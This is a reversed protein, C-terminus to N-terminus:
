ERRMICQASMPITGSSYGPLWSFFTGTIMRHPYSAIRVRVLSGSSANNTGGGTSNAVSVWSSTSTDYRQISIYSDTVAAYSALRVRSRITEVTNGLAAQRSGERAGQHLILYESFMTGFEAIAMLIVFLTPVVLMFEAIAAGRRRRGGTRRGNSGRVREM